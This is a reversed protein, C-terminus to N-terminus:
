ALMLLFLLIVVVALTITAALLIDLLKEMTFRRIPCNPYRSGKRHAAYYNYSSVASAKM